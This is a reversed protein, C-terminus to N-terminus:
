RQRLRIDGKSGDFTGINGTASKVQEPRFAVIEAVEGDLTVLVGDHGSRQAAEAFRRSWDKTPDGKPVELGMARIADARQRADVVLPNQLAVYVPIVNSGEARGAYVSAYGPDAAFYIGRGWGGSDTVEGARGADFASVDAKTGHYVVMPEGTDPDVVKSVADPNVSYVNQLVSRIAGADTGTLEGPKGADAGTKFVSQQLKEKLAVEHVYMRSTNRDSKVLVDAIFVKGGISIPAAVHFVAGERSGRMAERHIVRGRKLVDPVAAFAAAKDRGIGHSLSNKVATEDLCVAGIGDVEVTSVGRDAYWQPVKVTLPVGDSKFEDGTLTSIPSGDLFKRNALAQWDWFWAKFSPTRVQVWQPYSLKTKGGAKAKDYAPKGGYARETDRYQREASDTDPVGMYAADDDEAAQESAAPAQKNNADLVSM